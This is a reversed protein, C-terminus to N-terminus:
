FQQGAVNYQKDGKKIVVKGNVIVARAGTNVTTQQGNDTTVTDIATEKEGKLIISAPDIVVSGAASNGAFRISTIGAITTEDMQESLTVTKDGATSFSVTKTTTSGTMFLVRYPLSSSADENVLDSTTFSLTQYKSLDGANFEFIQMTNASKATWAFTKTATDYSCNGNGSVKTFGTCELTEYETDATELYVDAEAVKLSGSAGSGAIYIKNINAYTYPGSGEPATLEIDTLDIKVNDTDYTGVFSNTSSNNDCYVIVRFNGTKETTKIVLYKYNSLDVNGKLGTFLTMGNSSSSSWSFTGNEYSCNAMKTTGFANAAIQQTEAQMSIAFLAVLMSLLIKKM